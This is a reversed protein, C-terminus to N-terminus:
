VTKVTSQLHLLVCMSDVSGAQSIPNSMEVTESSGSPDFLEKVHSHM